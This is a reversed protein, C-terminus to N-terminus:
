APETPDETPETPETPDEETPETPDEETPETPDEEVPETPVETPPQTPPEAEMLGMSILWGSITPDKQLIGSSFLLGVAAAFLVVGIGVALVVRRLTKQKEPTTLNNEM